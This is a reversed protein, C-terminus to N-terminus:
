DRRWGACGATRAKCEPSDAKFAVSHSKSEAIAMQQEPPKDYGAKEVRISHAAAEVTSAFKGTSDTRGLPANDMFVLADPIGTQVVLTGTPHGTALNPRAVPQLTLNLAGSIKGAEVTLSEEVPQYGNLRHSCM